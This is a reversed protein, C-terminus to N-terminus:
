SGAPRFGGLKGSVARNFTSSCTHQAAVTNAGTLCRSYTTLQKGLLAFGALLLVSVAMGLGSIVLATISGRPIETRERRARSIATVAFWAAVVGALLAFAALYIGRGFNSIVLLGSLSLM